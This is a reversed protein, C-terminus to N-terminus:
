KASEKLKEPLLRNEELDDYEEDSIIGTLLVAYFTNTKLTIRTRM